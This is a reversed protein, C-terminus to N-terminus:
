QTHSAFPCRSRLPLHGEVRLRTQLTPMGIWLVESWEQFRLNSTMTTPGREHRQTLMEFLLVAETESLPVFGLEDVILLEYSAVQRQICPLKKPDRAEILESVQAAATTFSV